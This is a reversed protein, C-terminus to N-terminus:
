PCVAGIGLPCAAGTSCCITGACAVGTATCPVSAAQVRTPAVISLIVPLALAAPLYKLAVDRRSPKRTRIASRTRELLDFKRLQSLALLILDNDVSTGFERELLGAMQRTTMKGDCHKWVMASTKNLCHARDCKLDYVLIEDPLERVILQDRRAKPLAQKGSEDM